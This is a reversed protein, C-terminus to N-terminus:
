EFSTSFRANEGTADGIQQFIGPRFRPLDKGHCERVFGRHFHSMPDTLNKRANTQFLHPEASEVSQTFDDGSRREREGDGEGKALRNRRKCPLSTPSAFSKKIM